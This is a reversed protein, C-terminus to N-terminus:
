ATLTLADFSTTERTPSTFGTSPTTDIRPPRRQAWPFKITRDCARRRWHLGGRRHRVRHQHESGHICSASTPRTLGLHQGPQWRRSSPLDFRAANAPGGDGGYARAGTGAVNTAMGTTLDIMKVKSNHWASLLMKGQHDFSLHTPHNLSILLAVGDKADGIAGNGAVAEVVGDARIRRVRHNNWDLFYFAGDPGFAGDQPLYLATSRAPLGDGNYGAVGNGCLTSIYTPEASLTGALGLALAGIACGLLLPSAQKLRPVRRVRHALPCPRHHSM